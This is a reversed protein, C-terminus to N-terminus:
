KGGMFDGIGELIPGKIMSSFAVPKMKGIKIFIYHYHDM